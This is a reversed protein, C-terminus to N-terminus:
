WFCHCCCIYCMNDKIICWWMCRGPTRCHSYGYPHLMRMIIPTGGSNPISYAAEYAAPGDTDSHVATVGLFVYFCLPNGFYVIDGIYITSFSPSHLTATTSLSQQSPQLPHVHCHLQNAAEMDEADVSFRPMLNRRNPDQPILHQMPINESPMITTFPQSPTLPLFRKSSKHLLPSPKYPFCISTSSSKGTLICMMGPYTGVDAGHM